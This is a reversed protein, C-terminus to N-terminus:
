ILKIGEWWFPYKINQKKIVDMVENDEINQQLQLMEILLTGYSKDSEALIKYQRIKLDIGKLVSERTLEGIGIINQGHQRYFTETQTTFVARYGNILLFSFLYWDIAILEKDFSIKDLDGLKIATNSMGFINKNKIFELDIETNNNIRNSIYQESFVIEEKFLSLDNVVIDYKALYEISVQVRNDKFYDDSDGFILIDYKNDLIYNIGFERNKAHTNSYKLEIINLTKYRHKVEKFNKYGDNVVILDFNLYTQKELSTLFSILYKEKMPFITTLLAVRNKM